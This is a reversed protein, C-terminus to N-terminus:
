ARDAGDVAGAARQRAPEASQSGDPDGPRRPLRIRRPRDGRSSFVRGKGDPGTIDCIVADFQSLFGPKRTYNVRQEIYYTAYTADEVAVREFNNSYYSVEFGMAALPAELEQLSLGDSILAIRRLPAVYATWVFDAAADGDANGIVLSDSATDGQVLEIEVRSTSFSVAPASVFLDGLDLPAGAVSFNVEPLREHTTPWARLRYDGDSLGRLEFGGDAGTITRAGTAGWAEVQVGALPTAASDASRLTGAVTNGVLVAVTVSVSGAPKGKVTIDLDFTLDGVAAPDLTVVLPVESELSEGGYISAWTATGQVITSGGGGTLVAAVNQASDFSRNSLTVWLNVQDGPSAALADQHVTLNEVRVDGLMMWPANTVTVDVPLSRLAGSDQDRLLITAEYPQNGLRASLQPPNNIEIALDISAGPALSFSEPQVQLWDFGLAELALSLDLHGSTKVWGELRSDKRVGLLLADRIVEYSATPALSWLLAAAGAVHPAAMSTGSSYEYKADEPWILMMKMACDGEPITSFIDVGPAAIQVNEEGYNTFSALEGDHDTAAVTIVNDYVASYNAPYYRIRDNDRASNGAAAVILHNNARAFKIAESMVGATDRGGWSHNSVHAGNEVAYEIAKAIRASTTFGGFYSTLRIPMISVNWNVGAVGIGNNGVAGITGAVHTGHGYGDDVDSSNDFFNWGHIDGVVGESLGPHPNIWINAALDEHDIMVGTDCVAIVINNNGTTQNWISSAAAVDMGITGGSQRQNHLGYLLDFLPDNPLNVALAEARDDPSVLAVRPDAAMRISLAQAADITNEGDLRRALAAPFANFYFIPELNNAALIQAQEAKGVGAAFRVVIEDGQYEDADLTAWLIEPLEGEGVGEAGAGAGGLVGLARLPEHVEEFTRAYTREITMELATAGNNVVTVIDSLSQGEGIVYSLAAPMDIEMVPIIILPLEFDDELAAVAVAAPPAYDPPLAYTTVEGAVARPVGTFSYSGDSAVAAHLVVPGMSLQMVTAAFNAPTNAGDAFEVRGSVVIEPDVALRIDLPWERLVTGSDTVVVTLRQLAGKPAAPDIEVVFSPTLEVPYLPNTHATVVKVDSAHASDITLIDAVGMDATVLQATVNEASSEGKNLIRARLVIREGADIIGNGNGYLSDDIELGGLVIVPARDFPFEAGDQHLNFDVTENGAIILKRGAPPVMRGDAAAAQVYIWFTGYGLGAISYQGFEDSVGSGVVLGASNEVTVIANELPLDYDEPNPPLSNDIRIDYTVSGSVSGPTNVLEFTLPTVSGNTDLVDLNFTAADGAGLSPDLTVNCVLSAVSEATGGPAIATWGTADANVSARAPDASSLTGELATAPSYRSLNRLTIYIDTPIGATVTGTSNDPRVSEFALLGNELVTLRVPISLEIGSADNSDVFIEAEYVGPPLQRTDIALEVTEAAGIAVTAMTPDLKLWGPMQGEGYLVRLRFGLPLTGVNGITFSNTTVVGQPIALDFEEPVIEALADAIKIIVGVSPAVVPYDPSVFADELSARLKYSRGVNLGALQFSGDAATVVQRRQAGYIAEVVAGAIGVDQADVVKGGISEREELVLRWRAEYRQGAGDVMSLLLTIVTGAELDPSLELLVPAAPLARLIEGPPIDGFELMAPSGNILRAQESPRGECLVDLVGTVDYLTREFNIVDFNLGVTEGPEVYGDGDGGISDDVVVDTLMIDGSPIESFSVDDILWGAPNGAAVEYQDSMFRFRVQLPRNSFREPLRVSLREWLGTSTGTILDAGGFEDIYRTVNEWVGDNNVEVFGADTYQTARVMDRWHSFQIVPWSGVHIAPSVLVANVSDPHPGSIVTGWCRSVDAPGFRPIGYEWCAEGYLSEATWGATGTEFDSYYVEVRGRTIAPLYESEIVSLSDAPLTAVNGAYDEAVVRVFYKTWSELGIATIAHDVVFVGSEFSHLTAPLAVDAVVTGLAPEDTEWRVVFRDDRIEEVRLNSIVPAVDDIPAAANVTAGLGTQYEATLLDGHVATSGSILALTGVFNITGPERLANILGSARVAGAPTTIRWSIDIDNVSADHSADSVTVTVTADSRYAKRDFQIEGSYVAIAAALNLEGGTTMRGLLNENPRATDLILDRLEHYSATPNISLLLAAAGAVHPTAMSTGSLQVYNNDAGRGCSLINRGPAAIHVSQAGFCSFSSLQGNPDISAVSIINDVNYSAPYQPLADNDTSENGAAAVFLQNAAASAEIMAQLAMSYGTGGWSNNLVHAGHQIAYDVAAIGDATWGAGSSNLFKLAMLKVRWNVGAVGISNNGEAGITGAVHTGHGHDDQPDASTPVGIGDLWVAGHIDEQGDIEITPAPNVWMNTALDEHTYRIGTDIVAVIIDADGTTVDWATEAGIRPMGWLSPYRADNPVATAYFRYNPEVDLVAPDALYTQAAAALSLNAPLEIVQWSIREFERKVQAGLAATAQLSRVGAASRSAKAPDFRVLLQNSAANQGDVESWNINRGGGGNGLVLLPLLLVSFGSIILRKFWAIRFNM